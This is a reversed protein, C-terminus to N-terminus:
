ILNILDLEIPKNYSLYIFNLCFFIISVENKLEKKFTEILMLFKYKNENDPLKNKIYEIIINGSYGNYYLKDSLNIIHIIKDNLTLSNDKNILDVDIYKNLYM